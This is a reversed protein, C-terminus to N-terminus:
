LNAYSWSKLFEKLEQGSPMSLIQTLDQLSVAEFGSIGNATCFVNMSYSGCSACKGLIFDFSHAHSLDREFAWNRKKCYVFEAM